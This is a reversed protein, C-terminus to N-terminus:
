SRFSATRKAFKWELLVTVAQNVFFCPTRPQFMEVKDDTVAKSFAGEM